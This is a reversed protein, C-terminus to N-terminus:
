QQMLLENKVYVSFLQNTFVESYWNPHPIMGLSKELGIIITDPHTNFDSKRRIIENYKQILRKAESQPLCLIWPSQKAQEELFHWQEPLYDDRTSYQYDSTMWYKACGLWYNLIFNADIFENLHDPSLQVIKFTELLRNELEDDSLTSYANDPLYARKDHFGALLFNVEYCFTAFSKTKKLTPNQAFQKDLERFCPRYSDGAQSWPVNTEGRSTKLLSVTLIKNEMAVLTAFILVVSFLVTGGWLPKQGFQRLSDRFTAPIVTKLLNFFLIIVAYAYLAPLVFILYHYIQSGQGLLLLQTPQALWGAIMMAICFTAITKEVPVPKDTVTPLKVSTKKREEVVQPVVDDSLRRVAKVVLWALGCVVAVRVLPAYGPLFYIKDRPYKSLGFRTAADPHEHFRQWLFYWGLSLSGIASGFLFRWPIRWKNAHMSFGLVALFLLGLASLIFPDGQLLLSFLMGIAVGRRMSPMRREQWQRLLFYMLLVVFMETGMPRPIRQVFIDLTILDPFGWEWTGALKTLSLLANVSESIKNSFLQLSRTAISTALLLSFFNSFNCRRLFVILVVFYIWTLVVDAVMFGPVGFIAHAMAYPLLPVAQSGSTGEGYHISDTPDGFNFKSLAAIVPYVQNDGRPRYMAIEAWSADSRWKVMSGLWYTSAVVMVLLHFIYHWKREPMLVARIDQAFSKM